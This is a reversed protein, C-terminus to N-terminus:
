LKKFVVQEAEKNVIFGFFDRLNAYDEPDFNARKLVLTCNIQLYGNANSVLYEFMGEDDNFKVRVSKPMEDVKYGKPVEMILSFVDKFSSALEVPYKRDGAVFPNEKQTNYLMPSFYIIDETPKDMKLDCHLKVPEEYNNLSDLGVNSPHYEVPLATLIGKFYEDIPKTTLQERINYSGFGGKYVALEGQLEDKENLLLRVKTIETEMVSDAEMAVMFPAESITRGFSNYASNHLKGFAMKNYSADLLLQEDDINLACIVYNFKDMVPYIEYAKGNDRTSLIIPNSTFGQARLMTVLLLNIEAVNGAKSQFVKKLTNDTYLASHDKCTFNDRVYYYIKKAVDRTIDKTGAIRQLEDKVWGANRSLEMGFDDRKLMQEAAKEWSNMVPQVPQNPYRIASLQFEVKDVRNKLSNSFSETTTKPINEMVWKTTSVETNLTYYSTREAATNNKLTFVASATQKEVPKAANFGQKIFVFDYIIPVSLTYESYLVPINEQFYWDKLNHEFPSAITYKIDVICGEILNPMTFKTRTYNNNVKEEFISSKELKTEVLKEGQMTYTYAEIKQIKEKFFGSSYLPLTITAEDFANRNLLRIRSHKQYIINFGGSNDVDYQASGINALVVAHASSDIPYLKTEFDRATVEGLKFKNKQSQAPLAVLICLVSCAWFTVIRM